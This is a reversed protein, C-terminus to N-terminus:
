ESHVLIVVCAAIFTGLRSRVLWADHFSIYCLNQVRNVHNDHNHHNPFLRVISANAGIAYSILTLM